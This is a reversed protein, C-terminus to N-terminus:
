YLFEMYIYFTLECIKGVLVVKEKKECPANLVEKSDDHEQPKATAQNKPGKKM